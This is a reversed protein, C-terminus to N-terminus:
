FPFNLLRRTDKLKRLNEMFDKAKSLEIYPISYNFNSLGDFILANSNNPFLWLPYGIQVIFILKEEPQRLVLGAGKSRELESISYIAAIEDDSNFQENSKKTSFPLIFRKVASNLM